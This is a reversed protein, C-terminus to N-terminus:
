TNGTGLGDQGVKTLRSLPLCSRKSAFAAPPVGKVALWARMVIVALSSGERRCSLMAEGKETAGGKVRKGHRTAGDWM